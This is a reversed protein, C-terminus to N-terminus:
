RVRPHGDPLAGSAARQGSVPCAALPDQVSRQAPPVGLAAERIMREADAPDLRWTWWLAHVQFQLWKHWYYKQYEPIWIFVVILAVIVFPWRTPRPLDGPEETHETGCTADAGASAAADPEATPRQAGNCSGSAPGAGAPAGASRRGSARRVAESRRLLLRRVRRM